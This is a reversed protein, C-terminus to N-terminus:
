CGERETVWLRQQNKCGFIIPVERRPGPVRPQPAQHPNPSRVPVRVALIDRGIKVVVCPHPVQWNQVEVGRVLRSTAERYIM